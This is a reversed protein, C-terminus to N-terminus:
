DDRAQELGIMDLVGAIAFVEKQPWSRGRLYHFAKLLSHEALVTGEGIRTDCERDEWDDKKWGYDNRKRVMQVGGCILDNLRGKQKGREFFFFANLTIMTEGVGQARKIRYATM